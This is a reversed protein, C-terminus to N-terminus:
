DLAARIERALADLAALGEGPSAAEGVAKVLASGVIVGDAGWARLQAAQAPGSVGFGVAVPKDTMGRLSAILGEVRGENTTRAGTVGAVSVLYVFGQSAAAIAAMRAAPTTPTCLLVLELGASGAVDRVPGTEELPIDPVLLGAPIPPSHTSPHPRDVAPPPRRALPPLPRPSGARLEARRGVGGRGEWVGGEVKFEEGTVGAAAAEGCFRALGRRMIPNYYTFLVISAKLGPTTAALMSLVADLTTGGDLGRTHAGQITPGDALPDSYPVGLEIVDAGAADLAKLAAASTALDPDGAM